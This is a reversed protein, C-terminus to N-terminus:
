ISIFYGFINRRPQVGFLPINSDIINGSNDLTYHYKGQNLLVMGANESYAIKRNNTYTVFQDTQLKDMTGNYQYGFRYKTGTVAGYIVSKIDDDLTFNIAYEFIYDDVLGLHHRVKILGIDNHPSIAIYREVKDKEFDLEYIDNVNESLTIIDSSGPYKESLEKISYKKMSDFKINALDESNFEDIIDISCNGTKSVRGIRIHNLMVEDEEIGVINSIADTNQYKYRDKQPEYKIDEDFTLGLYNDCPSGYVVDPYYEIKEIKYDHPNYYSNFMTDTSHKFVHYSIDSITSLRKDFIIITPLSGDTYNVIYIYYFSKDPNLGIEFKDEYVYNTYKGEEKKGSTATANIEFEMMLCVMKGDNIKRPGESKEYKCLPICLKNSVLDINITVKAFDIWDNGVEKQIDYNLDLFIKDLEEYVSDSMRNKVRTGHNTNNITTSNALTITKKNTSFEYEQIYANKLM